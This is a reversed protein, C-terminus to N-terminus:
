FLEKGDKDLLIGNENLEEGLQANSSTDKLYTKEADKPYKNPDIKQKGDKGFEYLM